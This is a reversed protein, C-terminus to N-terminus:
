DHCFMTIKGHDSDALGAYRLRMTSRMAQQILDCNRTVSYLRFTDLKGRNLLGVVDLGEAVSIAAIPYGEDDLIAANM